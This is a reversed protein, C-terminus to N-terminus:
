KIEVGGFLCTSDIYITKQKKEDKKMVKNTTAGFISTPKVEVNVNEPVLILISGFIASSEIVIDEKLTAHTLDLRFEAFISNLKLNGVNENLVLMQQGFTVAYEVAEKDESLKKIRSSVKNLSNHKFILSLGIIVLITPLMLDWILKSSIIDNSNLFLVVGMFLGLLNGFLGKGKIIGIVSPVIIFLTWWGKFFINFELIDLAKLAYLFGAIIFLLGWLLNGNKKM